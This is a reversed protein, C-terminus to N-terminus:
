PHRQTSSERVVVRFPSVFEQPEVARGEIRRILLDVATRAMLDHDPNVSSLSPVSYASLDVDDFGIVKVDGPVDKGADVLGRIVGMAVYDTVCFVADFDEGRNLLERVAAAGGELTLEEISVVLEPAPPLGARDLATRYGQHRLASVDIGADLRGVIAAIRRCGQEVLHTVAAAAGDVNPMAVHDVPGQFIREGLIVMPYDVRLLERDAEGLGVASLILGDYMRNRSFALADLENERSRGTQEILVHLNHRAGQEIIAAGLLGFYPRNVEPVALGITRTRGKRLNRAAVNVRYDLDDIAKLVRLRTAEAVHPHDNVVHSVTMPSVGAAKAVDQMTVM